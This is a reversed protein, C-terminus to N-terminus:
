PEARGHQGHQRRLDARGFHRDLERAPVQAVRSLGAARSHGDSRRALRCRGFRQHGLERDEFGAGLRGLDLENGSSSRLLRAFQAADVNLETLQIRDEGKTFDKIEGGTFDSGAYEFIDNGAGGEMIGGHELAVLRDDGAGGILYDADDIGGRLTDNGHGGDLVDHRGNGGAELRDDHPSGVLGEIGLLVDGEAHGGRGVPILSDNLAVTVGSPSDSYVVVDAGDDDGGIFVDAGAGGDFGDSGPGGLLIDNGEDGFLLDDDRDGFLVDVGAGGFVTDTGRGGRVVDDGDDGFIRDNGQDGYLSDPGNGGSLYDNGVAGRLQDQGGHGYIRDAEPTGFYQDNTGDGEFVAM